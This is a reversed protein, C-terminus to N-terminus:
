ILFRYSFKNVIVILLFVDLKHEQRVNSNSVFERGALSVFSLTSLPTDNIQM